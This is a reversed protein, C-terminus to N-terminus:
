GDERRRQFYNRVYEHLEPKDSAWRWCGNPDIAIDTAPDFGFGNLRTHREIGRRDKMEGHWLHFVDGGVFSVAGGVTAQFPKAWALYWELHSSTMRHAMSAAGFHGFVAAAMARDGGGLINADYFGRDALIERRAAWAHGRASKFRDGPPDEALCGFAPAGAAIASVVSFRSFEAAKKTLAGPSFDRPMDHVREFAQLLAFRELLRSVQGSWEENGFVIDCDLWAVKTCADPMADLAINLLREKQWMVDGGRLQILIEADSEDLEFDAGYALEVAVLPIKLRERFVRYNELRRRYGVPNFYSTIAWLDSERAAVAEKEDQRGSM